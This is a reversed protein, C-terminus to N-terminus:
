PSVAGHHGRREEHQAGAQQSYAKSEAAESRMLMRCTKPPWSKIGAIVKASSRNGCAPCFFVIIKPMMNEIVAVAGQVAFM